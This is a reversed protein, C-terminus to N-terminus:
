RLRREPASAEVRDRYFDILPHDPEIGEWMELVVEASDPEGRALALEIQAGALSFFETRHLRTQSVFPELLMRADDVRGERAAISALSAAAFLYDPHQEHLRELLLRAERTRGQRGYASALNNMIDRADPELALAQLLLPEAEEAEDIQLLEVAENVLDEVDPSHSHLPEDHIEYNRLQIEKWEGKIWVRPMESLLGAESARNLAQLRQADPGSRGLAFDRLAALM